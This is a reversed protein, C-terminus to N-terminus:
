ILKVGFYKELLYLTIMTMGAEDLNTMPFFDPGILFVILILSTLGAMAKIIESM